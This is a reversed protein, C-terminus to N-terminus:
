KGILSHFRWDHVRGRRRQFAGGDRRIERTLEAHRLRPEHSLICNM